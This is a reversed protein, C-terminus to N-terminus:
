WTDQSLAPAVAARGFPPVGTWGKRTIGFGDSISGRYIAICRDAIGMTEQLVDLTREQMYETMSYTNGALILHFFWDNVGSGQAIDGATYQTGAIFAKM